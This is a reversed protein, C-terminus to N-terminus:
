QRSFKNKYYESSADYWGDAAAEGIAHKSLIL